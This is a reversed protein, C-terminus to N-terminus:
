RGAAPRDPAAPAFQMRQNSLSGRYVVSWYAVASWAGCWSGLGVWYTAVPIDRLLRRMMPGLGWFSDALGFRFSRVVEYAVVYADFLLFPLAGLVAGLILFATPGTRGRKALRNGLPMGVFLSVVLALPSAVVAYTQVNSLVLTWDKDAFWGIGLLTLIIFLAGIAAPTALTALVIGVGKRMGEGEHDM